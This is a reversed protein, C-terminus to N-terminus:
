FYQHLILFNSFNLHLNQFFASRILHVYLYSVKLISHSYFFGSRIAVKFPCFRWFKSFVFFLFSSISFSSTSESFFYLAILWFRLSTCDFNDLKFSFLALFSAVISPISFLFLSRNYETLFSSLIWASSEIKDWDSRFM